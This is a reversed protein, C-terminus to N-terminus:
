LKKRKDDMLTSIGVEMDDSIRDLHEMLGYLAPLPTGDCGENEIRYLISDLIAISEKLENTLTSLHALPTTM